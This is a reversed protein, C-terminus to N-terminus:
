ASKEMVFFFFDYLATGCKYTVCRVEHYVKVWCVELYSKVCVVNWTIYCMQRLFCIFGVGYM